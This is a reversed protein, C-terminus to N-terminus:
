PAPPTETALPIVTVLPRLTQTGRPTPTLWPTPTSRSAGQSGNLLDRLGNLFADFRQVSERVAEIEQNLDALQEEVAGVRNGLRSVQEALGDVDERLNTYEQRVAGLAEAMSTMRARTAELDEALQQISAQTDSLRSDLEQIAGLRGEVQDLKENLAALAYELRSAEDQAARLAAMRFDLTGNLAYLFALALLAGAIASLVGVFLVRGWGAPGPVVEVLPPEPGPSLREGTEVVEAEEAEVLEPEPEPEAALDAELWEDAVEEPEAAQPAEVPSATVRGAIEAYMAESIGPVATVDAPDQFPQVESRYSVIREALAPGIGPLEQLEAVTATNLDLEVVEEGLRIVPVEEPEIGEALDEVPEVVEGVDEPEPLAEMGEMMEDQESM